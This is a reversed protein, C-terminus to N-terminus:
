RPSRAQIVSAPSNGRSSGGGSEEPESPPAPTAPQATPKPEVVQYFTEGRGVMGLDTRAREEIAVTGKKLDQVEAALTRNREKLERNQERQQEIQARLQHVERMGGDGLWLRYQLLVLVIVLAAALVKM